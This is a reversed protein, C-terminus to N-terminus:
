DVLQATTLTAVDNTSGIDGGWWLYGKRGAGDDDNVILGTRFAGNEPSVRLEAWPISVEYTTTSAADDRDIAAGAGDLVGRNEQSPQYQRYVQPGDPTLAVNIESFNESGLPAVAFQLGDSRWTTRGTEEQVHEDDKVAAVLYLHEDDWGLWVDADLDDSGGYDDVAVTGDDAMAIPENESLADLSGDIAPSGRWVPNLAVTGTLTVAERNEFRITAEVEAGPAYPEVGGLDALPASFGVSEGAAVTGDVSTRGAADGTTWEIDTPEFSLSQTHNHVRVELRLTNSEPGAIRPVLDASLPESIAVESQLRAYPRDAGDAQLAVALTRLGSYPPESPGAV